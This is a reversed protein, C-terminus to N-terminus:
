PGPRKLKCDTNAKFYGAYKDSQNVDGKRPAVLRSAYKCSFLHVKHRPRAVLNRWPLPLSLIISVFEAQVAAFNFGFLSFSYKATGGIRM